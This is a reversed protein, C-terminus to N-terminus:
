RGITVEWRIPVSPQLKGLEAKLLNLEEITKVKGRVIVSQMDETMVPGVGSSAWYFADQKVAHEASVVGYAKIWLSAPDTQPPIVVDPKPWVAWTVFAICLVIVGGAMAGRIKQSRVARADAATDRPRPM